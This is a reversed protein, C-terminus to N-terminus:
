AFLTDPTPAEPRAKEDKAQQPRGIGFELAKILAALRKDPALDAFSGQGLAADVLELALAGTAAEFTQRAPPPDRRAEARKARVEASRAAARKAEEESWPM